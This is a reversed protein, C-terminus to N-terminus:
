AEFIEDDRQNCVHMKHWFQKSITKFAERFRKNLLSYILPNCFANSFAMWHAVLQFNKPREKTYGVGLLFADFAFPAWCVIFTIVTVLLLRALRAQHSVRKRYQKLFDQKNVRNKWKQVVSSVSIKKFREQTKPTRDSTLEESPEGDSINDDQSCAANNELTQNLNEQISRNIDSPKFNRLPIEESSSPEDTQANKAQSLVDTKEGQLRQQTSNNMIDLKRKLEMVTYRNGEDVSFESSPSLTVSQRRAAASSKRITKNHMMIFKVIRAYAIIMVILPVTFLSVFLFEAYHKSSSFDLVCSYYSPIYKIEGGGFLPPCAYIIALVYITIISTKVMKGLFVASLRKQVTTVLYCRYMSYVLLTLMSASALFTLLFGNVICMSHGFVWRGKTLVTVYSFLMVFSAAVDTIALSGIYMNSFTRLNKCHYIALLVLANGIFSALSILILPITHAVSEWTVMGYDTSDNM